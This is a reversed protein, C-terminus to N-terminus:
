LVNGEGAPSPNPIPAEPSNHKSDDFLARLFRARLYPINSINFSLVLNDGGGRLPHPRTKLIAAAAV